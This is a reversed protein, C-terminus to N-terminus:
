DGVSYHYGKFGTRVYDFMRWLGFARLVQKIFRSRIPGQGMNNADSIFVGRKAVRTMEEVARRHDAVHHLVGFSCVVDVSDAPFALALADGDMLQAASLGKSYAIERLAASPEIGNFVVPSAAFKRTLHLLARGTGSGVDLLSRHDQLEIM